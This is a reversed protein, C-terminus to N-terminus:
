KLLLMKRTEVFQGCVLQYFYIGSAVPRGADDVGHWTVAHEGVGQPGDVLRCVAQGMVNYVTLTVQAAQPLQYSIHTQPNFPNPYNQSLQYRGPVTETVPEDEVGVSPGGPPWNWFGGTEVYSTGQSQGVATQGTSFDVLYSSSEMHGGCESLVDKVLIYDARAMSVTLLALGAVGILALNFLKKM